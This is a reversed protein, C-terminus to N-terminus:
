SRLRCNLVSANAATTAGFPEPFVVRSRATRSAGAYHCCNKTERRHDHLLQEGRDTLYRRVPRGDLQHLPVRTQGQGDGIIQRKQAIAPDSEAFPRLRDIEIARM